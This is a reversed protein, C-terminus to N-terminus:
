VTKWVVCGNSGILLFLILCDRRGCHLPTSNLWRFGKEKFCCRFLVFFLFYM